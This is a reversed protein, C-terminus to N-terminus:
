IGYVLALCSEGTSLGERILCDQIGRSPVDRLVCYLGERWGIGEDGVTAM